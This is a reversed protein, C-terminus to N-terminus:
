DNRFEWKRDLMASFVDRVHSQVDCFREARKRVISRITWKFFKRYPEDNLPVVVRDYVRM